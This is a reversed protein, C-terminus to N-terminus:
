HFVCPPTLIVKVDLALEVARRRKAPRASEQGLMPNDPEDGPPSDNMRTLQAAETGKNQTAPMPQLALPQPQMVRMPQMPQMPQGLLPASM